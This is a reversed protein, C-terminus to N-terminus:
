IFVHIQRYWTRQEVCECRVSGKVQCLWQLHLYVLGNRSLSLTQDSQVLTLFCNEQDKLQSWNKKLSVVPLWPEWLWRPMCIGRKCYFQTLDIITLPFNFRNSKFGDGTRCGAIPRCTWLGALIREEHEDQFLYLVWFSYNTQDRVRFWVQALGGSPQSHWKFM